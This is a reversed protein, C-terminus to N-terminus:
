ALQGATCREHKALDPRTSIAAYGAGALLGRVAAAQDHGHELLLWGGPNLYDTAQTVIHTLDRLGDIGSVLASAPEHALDPLHSDDQAVYPPNSIILDYRRTVGDLWDGLSFQVPLGLRASNDRAVELAGASADVADVVLDPLSHKLALAIAGSGTGLDIVRMAGTSSPMRARLLEVAWAVVIETDARPVLVSANVRLSIGFFEREGTIYALPEGVARRQVLEAFLRASDAPLPYEGHAALWARGRTPNESAQVLTHLLLLQADLRDLGRGAASRLAADVTPLDKAACTM